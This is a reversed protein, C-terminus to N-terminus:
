KGGDLDIWSKDPVSLRQVIIEHVEPLYSHGESNLQTDDVKIVRRQHVTVPCCYGEPRLKIM